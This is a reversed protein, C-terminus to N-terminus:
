KCFRIYGDQSVKVVDLIKKLSSRLYEFEATVVSLILQIVGFCISGSSLLILYKLKLYVIFEWRSNLYFIMLAQWIILFYSVEVVFTEPSIQDIFISFMFTTKSSLKEILALFM